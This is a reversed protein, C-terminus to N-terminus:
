NKLLCISLLSALLVLSLILTFTSYSMQKSEQFNERLQLPGPLRANLIHRNKMRIERNLNKDTTETMTHHGATCKTEWDWTDGNRKEDYIKYGIPLTMEKCSNSGLNGTESIARGLEIPNIDYLQEFLGPLLGRGETLGSLNCGTANYFSLNLPPLTGTPINRVYTYKTKDKCNSSSTEPDCKGSEIFYNTGLAIDKGKMDVGSGLYNVSYKFQANWYSLKEKHPNKVDETYQILGHPRVKYSHKIREPNKLLEESSIESM